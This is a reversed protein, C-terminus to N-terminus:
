QFKFNLFSKKLVLHFTSNKTKFGSFFEGILLKLYHFVHEQNQHFLKNKLRKM